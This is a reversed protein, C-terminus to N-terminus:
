GVGFDRGGWTVRTDIKIGTDFADGFGNAGVWFVRGAGFDRPNDQGM